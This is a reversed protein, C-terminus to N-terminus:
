LTRARWPMPRGAPDALRRITPAGDPSRGSAIGNEQDGYRIADLVRSANRGVLYVTEGNASLAFGLQNQDFSLFGRAPITTNDPIRFKNTAADDTLWCGSLDVASNSHNYLEIFDFQPDDTHALFENIVVNQQPTPYAADLGGPSGGILESAAWARVQNEGYSPRALVLSHGAGDAAAPWPPNDSYDVELRIAETNNRLRVTGADNPLANTYPGLVNTIGYVAKLDDPAAAIAVFEGAQLKFGDPFKFDIDGSLRWGTLDEFISRANYIEVFELVAM